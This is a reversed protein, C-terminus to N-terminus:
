EGFFVVKVEEATFEQCEDQGLMYFFRHLYSLRQRHLWKKVSAHLMANAKDFSEAHGEGRIHQGDQLIAVYSFYITM